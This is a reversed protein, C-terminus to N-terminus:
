QFIACSPFQVHITITAHISHQCCKCRTGFAVQKVAVFCCMPMCAELVMDRSHRSEAAFTAVCPAHLGPALLKRFVCLPRHLHYRKCSMCTMVHGGPPIQMSGWHFKSEVCAKLAHWFGVKNMVVYNVTNEDNYKYDCLWMSFGEPDYGEFHQVFLVVDAHMFVSLMCVLLCPLALLLTLSLSHRSTCCCLQYAGTFQPSLAACLKMCKRCCAYVTSLALWHLLDASYQMTQCQRSYICVASLAHFKTCHM